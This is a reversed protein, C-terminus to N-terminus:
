VFYVWLLNYSLIDGLLRHKSKHIARPWSDPGKKTWGNKQNLFGDTKWDSQSEPPLNVLEYMQGKQFLKWSKEAHLGGSYSSSCQYACLIKITPPFPRSATLIHPCSACTIESDAHERRWSSRMMLDWSARHWWPNYHQTSWDEQTDSDLATSSPPINEPNHATACLIWKTSRPSVIKKWYQDHMLNREIESPPVPKVM